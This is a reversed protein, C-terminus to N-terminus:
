KAFVVIAGLFCAVSLVGWLWVSQGLDGLGYRASWSKRRELEHLPVGSTDLGLCALSISAPVDKAPVSLKRADVALYGFLFALALLILATM